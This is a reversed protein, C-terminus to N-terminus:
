KHFGALYIHWFSGGFLDALIVRWFTKGHFDALDVRSFLGGFESALSGRGREFDGPLVHSALGGGEGVAGGVSRPSPAPLRGPGGVCISCTSKREKECRMFPSM